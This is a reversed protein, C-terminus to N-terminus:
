ATEDKKYINKRLLITGITRVVIKLDLGFSVHNAYYRDHTLKEEWTTDNSFYAQTYGTIGPRVSLYSRFGEPYQSLPVVVDPRPGIVSMHGLLVNLVQPLEDISTERIIKGTRTIRPDNKGTFLTGETTLVQSAGTKMSRLKYMRFPVGNKGVRVSNYFVPGRDELWICCAVPVLVVVFFPLVIIAFLLDFIRKFFNRYM